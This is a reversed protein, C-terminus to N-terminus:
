NTTSRVTAAHGPLHEHQDDARSTGIVQDHMVGCWGNVKPNDRIHKRVVHPNKTGWIRVNHKHVKGSVQFTAKDTFIIKKLFHVDLDTLDLM